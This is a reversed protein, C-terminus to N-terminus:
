IESLAAEKPVGKKIGDLNPHPGRGRPERPLRHESRLYCNSGLILIM